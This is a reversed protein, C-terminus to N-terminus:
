LNGFIVTRLLVPDNKSVTDEVLNQLDHGNIMGYLEINDNFTVDTFNQAM